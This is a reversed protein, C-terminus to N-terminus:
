MTPGNRNVAAKAYFKLMGGLRERYRISNSTRIENPANILSNGLGQHNREFHYHLLFESITHRLSAEGFFIMRDLCSEKITRVFREAYANLNPSRPPLKMSKLGVTQLIQVFENTYLPDRNADLQQQNIWGALCIAVFRFLDLSM